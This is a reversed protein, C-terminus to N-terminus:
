QGPTVSGFSTIDDATGYTSDPGASILIYSDRAKPQNSSPDNLFYPYADYPYQYKLTTNAPTKEGSAILNKTVTRLGHYAIVVTAPTGNYYYGRSSKSTGISSSGGAVPTTTDITMNTPWTGGGQFSQTYSAIQSLTYQAVRPTTPTTLDDIIVPNTIETYPPAGKGTAGV